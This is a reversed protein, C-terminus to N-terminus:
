EMKVNRPWALLFKLTAPRWDRMAWGLVLSYPALVMLITVRVKFFKRDCWSVAKSRLRNLNTRSGFPEPLLIAM